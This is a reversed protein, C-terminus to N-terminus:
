RAFTAEKAPLFRPDLIAPIGDKPPGGGMIEEPPISHKTFDFGSLGLAVVVLGSLILARKM